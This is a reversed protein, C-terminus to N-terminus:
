AAKKVKVIVTPMQYQQDTNAANVYTATQTHAARLSLALTTNANAYTPITSIQRTFWHSGTQDQYHQPFVPNGDVYVWQQVTGQAALLAMGGFDYTITERSRGSRYNFSMNPLTAPTSSSGITSRTNTGNHRTVRFVMEYPSTNRVPNGLPDLGAWGLDTLVTTAQFQDTQFVATVATANTVVKAIRIAPTGDTSFSLTMGSVAGNSVEVYSFSGDSKLDVYTDKNATFTKTTLLTSVYLGNIIALGASISSSLSASTPITLGSVVHDFMSNRRQIILSNKEIDLDGSALGAFNANVDASRITTNPSFTVLPM